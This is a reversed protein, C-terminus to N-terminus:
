VNGLDNVAKGDMEDSSQMVKFCAEYIRLTEMMNVMEEMANVNSTETSGQLIQSQKAEIEEQPAQLGFLNKGEKQLGAPDAFTVLVIRDTEKGDVLVSGNADVAFNKGRITIEGRQGLVPYGDRQVLMQDKNLGFNGARTYRIGAPTQVKFFGEGEIALDFDNGTKQIDGQQFVTVTSDVTTRNEGGIPSLLQQFVSVEKKYGTTQTNSLNNSIVNFRREQLFFGTPALMNLNRM